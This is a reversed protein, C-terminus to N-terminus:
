KNVAARQVADFQLSITALQGQYTNDAEPPLTLTVRLNDGAKAKLSALSPLSLASFTAAQPKLVSVPATCTFVNSGTPSSPPPPLLRTLLRATPAWDQSLPPRPWLAASALVKSSTSKLNLGM